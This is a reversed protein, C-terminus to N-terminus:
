GAAEGSAGADSASIEVDAKPPTFDIVSVLGCPRCEWRLVTDYGEPVDIENEAQCHGCKVTQLAM